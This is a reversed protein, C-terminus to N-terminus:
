GPIRQHVSEPFRYDLRQQLAELGVHDNLDARVLAEVGAIEELVALSGVGDNVHDVGEGFVVHVFPQLLIRFVEHEMTGDAEIGESRDFRGVDHEDVAVVVPVRDEVLELDEPLGGLTTAAKGEDEKMVHAPWVAAAVEIVLGTPNRRRM